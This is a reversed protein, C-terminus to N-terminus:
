PLLTFVLLIMSFVFLSYEIGSTWNLHLYYRDIWNDMGWRAIYGPLEEETWFVVPRVTREHTSLMGWDGDAILMHKMRNAKRDVFKYRRSSFPWLLPVGWGVGYSDNIFHLMTAFLFLLGFFPSVWVVSIGVILFLLPYHLGERHDYVYQSSAAIKGRRLLEPVADLDPLMAFPIGILFYWWAIEGHTVLGALLTAFIGNAIDALIPLIQKM